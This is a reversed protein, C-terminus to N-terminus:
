NIAPIQYYVAPHRPYKIIFYDTGASWAGETDDDDWFRIRWYYKVGQSLTDGDYSIAACREGETFNTIDLKGSDWMDNDNQSTGVEIEAHTLTDGDDPDNGIATFEPTTDTVNVPDTSGECQLDTPATPAENPIQLELHDGSQLLLADGDQKLYNAM